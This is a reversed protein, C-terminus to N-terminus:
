LLLRTKLFVKGFNGEGVVEELILDKGSIRLRGKKSKKVIMVLLSGSILVGLLGVVLGIVLNESSKENQSNIL